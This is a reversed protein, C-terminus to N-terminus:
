KVRLCRREKKRKRKIQQKKRGSIGDGCSRIKWM